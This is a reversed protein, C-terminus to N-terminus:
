APGAPVACTGGKCTLGSACDTGTSCASGPAGTNGPGSTGQASAPVAAASTSSSSTVASKPDVCYGGNCSLGGTCDSSQTCDKNLETDETWKGCNMCPRCAHYTWRTGPDQGRLSAVYETEKYNVEGQGINIYGHGIQVEWHDHSADSDKWMLQYMNGAKVMQKGDINLFSKKVVSYFYQRAQDESMTLTPLAATMAAQSPASFNACFITLDYKDTSFTSPTELGLTAGKGKATSDWYGFTCYMKGASYQPAGEGQWGTEDVGPGFATGIVYYTGAFPNGAPLTKTMWNIGRAQAPPAVLATGMIDGMKQKIVTDSCSTGAGMEGAGSASAAPGGMAGDCAAPNASCFQDCETGHQQCYASCTAASDCGGPGKAPATPGSGAPQTCGAIMCALAALAILFVWNYSFVGRKKQM